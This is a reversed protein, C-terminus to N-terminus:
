GDDIWTYVVEVTNGPEHFTVSECLENLLLIGRGSLQNSDSKESLGLTLFDFGQGSDEVRIKMKGGNTTLQTQVEMKVFGKDLDLLREERERFYETFGDASSKLSSDLRLVGHDLANVYLETLITFLLRRHSHLGELEQIHNIILPIPDAQRLRNGTLTLSFELIDGVVENSVKVPKTTKGGSIEQTDWQSLIKPICPVEALSIDDDQPADQCFSKLSATIEQIVSERNTSDAIAQEFRAQGFYENNNNRAESVGDSVLLVRDGSTIKVQHLYQQFDIDPAIGLPLSDASLREKIEGTQGDLILMDPMGCNCVSIHELDPHVSIFQIAFFMGTPLLNYLKKNIGAIIQHPAFGKNTMARFVESTPLAGIAAALGHGTFDGLMVNIGRSPAHASLLVDGSFIEAPRLITHIVDKAVNGTVVAGSFVTEAMEQDNQMRSYLGSVENHLDRIREMSRIKAKLVTHSFPKTLFDDGGVDICKALADDDTMATLFIISVFGETTIERIRSVAEYGDMVPMMVDMFIIDPRINEYANVAELGNEAQIVEYGNKNLLSKLIIRNSLEDDVVLATRSKNSNRDRYIQMPTPNSAM